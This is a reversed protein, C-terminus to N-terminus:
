IKIQTVRKSQRAFACGVAPLCIEAKRAPPFERPKSPRLEQNTKEPRIRLEQM